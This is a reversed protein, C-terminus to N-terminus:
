IKLKKHSVKQKEKVIEKKTKLKAKGELGEKLKWKIKGNEKLEM